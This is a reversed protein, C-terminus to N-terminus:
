EVVLKKVTGNLRVFYIGRPLEVMAQGDLDLEKITQGLTNLVVLHGTGEVTVM